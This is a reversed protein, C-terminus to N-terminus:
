LRTSPCDAGLALIWRCERAPRTRMLRVEIHWERLSAKQYPRSPSGRRPTTRTARVPGREPVRLAGRKPCFKCLLERTRESGSTGGVGGVACQVNARGFCMTRQRRDGGERARGGEPATTQKRRPFVLARAQELLPVTLRDLDHVELRRREEQSRQPDPVPEDDSRIAAVLEANEAEACRRRQPARDPSTAPAPLSRVGVVSSAKIRRSSPHTPRPLPRAPAAAAGRARYRSGALYTHSGGGRAVRDARPRQCCAHSSPRAPERSPLSLDRRGVATRDSSGSARSAPARRSGARRTPENRAVPAVETYRADDRDGVVDAHKL